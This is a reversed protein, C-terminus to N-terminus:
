LFMHLACAAYVSVYTQLCDSCVFLMDYDPAPDDPM